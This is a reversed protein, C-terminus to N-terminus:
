LAETKMDQLASADSGSTERYRKIEPSLTQSFEEISRSRFITSVLCEAKGRSRVVLNWFTLHIETYWAGVREYVVGDIDTNQFITKKRLPRLIRLVGTDRHFRLQCRFPWFGTTLAWCDGEDRFRSFM